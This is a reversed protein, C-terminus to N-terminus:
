VTMITMWIKPVITKVVMWIIQIRIPFGTLREVLASDMSDEIGDNDQDFNPEEVIDTYIFFEYFRVEAYSNCDQNGHGTFVNLLYKRCQGYLCKLTFYQTM